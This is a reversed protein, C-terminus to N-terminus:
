NIHNQMRVKTEGSQFSSFIHLSRQDKPSEEKFEEKHPITTTQLKEWSDTFGYPYVCKKTVLHMDTHAFVKATERFKSFNTTLLNEALISLKFAL